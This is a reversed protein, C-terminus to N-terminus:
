SIWKTICMYCHFIVQIKQLHTWALSCKQCPFKSIEIQLVENWILGTLTFHTLYVSRQRTSDWVLLLFGKLPARQRIKRKTYVETIIQQAWDDTCKIYRTRGELVQNTEFQCSIKLLALCCSRRSSKVRVTDNTKGIHYFICYKKHKNLFATSVTPLPKLTATECVYQWLVKHGGALHTVVDTPSM